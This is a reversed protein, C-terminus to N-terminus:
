VYIAGYPIHALATIIRPEKKFSVSFKNDPYPIVEFWTLCNILNNVVEQIVDADYLRNM